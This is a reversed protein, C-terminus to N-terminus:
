APELVNVTVHTLIDDPSLELEGSDMHHRLSQPEPITEGHELMGEFHFELAETMLQLTAEFSEEAAICGLVDPAFACYGNDSRQVVVCYQLTNM